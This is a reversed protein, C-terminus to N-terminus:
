NIQKLEINFTNDIETIDNAIKFASYGQSSVMIEVFAGAKFNHKYTGRGDTFLTISDNNTYSGDPTNGYKWCVISVKANSILHKTMKDKVTGKITINEVDNYCSVFAFILVVWYFKM